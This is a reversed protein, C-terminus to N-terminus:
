QVRNEGGEIRKLKERVNELVEAERGKWKSTTRLYDTNKRGAQYEEIVAPYLFLGWSFGKGASEIKEAVYWETYARLDDVQKELRLLARQHKLPVAMTYRKGAPLSLRIKKQIAQIKQARQGASHKNGRKGECERDGMGNMGELSEDSHYIYDSEDEELIVSDDTEDPSMNYRQISDAKSTPTPPTTPPPTNKHKKGVANKSHLDSCLCVGTKVTPIVANKSHTNETKYKVIYENTRGHQRDIDLLNLRVLQRIAKYFNRECINLAAYLKHKERRRKEVPLSWLHVWLALAEPSTEKDRILATIYRITNLVTKFDNM